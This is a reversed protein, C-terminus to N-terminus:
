VHPGGSDSCAAIDEGLEATYAEGVVIADQSLISITPGSLVM